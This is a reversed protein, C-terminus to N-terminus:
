DSKWIMLFRRWDDQSKKLRWKAATGLFVKRVTRWMEQWNERWCLNQKESEMAAHMTFAEIGRGPPTEKSEVRTCKSKWKLKSLILAGKDDSVHQKWLFTHPMYPLLAFAKCTHSALVWEVVTLLKELESDFVRMWGMAPRHSTVM